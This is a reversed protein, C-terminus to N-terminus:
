LRQDFASRLRRLLVICLAKGPVSLLTIGRWNTCESTKGKKPLKVIAGKRWDEPVTGSQWWKNFLATFEEVQPQDGHKLLEAPIEDLGTAKNNKLSKIAIKVEEITIRGTNVGFEHQANEAEFNYTTAPQNFTEQFHEAWRKNQEVQTILLM